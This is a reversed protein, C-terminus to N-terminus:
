ARRSPTAFFRVLGLLIAAGVLAVLLGGFSLPVSGPAITTFIFGGILAGIIGVVIDLLLGVASPLVMAAVWGCVAGEIIWALWSFSDM